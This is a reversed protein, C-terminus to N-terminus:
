FMSVFSKYPKGLNCLVDSVENLIEYLQEFTLNKNLEYLEDKHHLEYNHSEMYTIASNIYSIFIDDVFVNENWLLKRLNGKSGDICTYSLPINEAIIGLTDSLKWKFDVADYLGKSGDNFVKELGLQYEVNGTFVNEIVNALRPKNNNKVEYRLTFNINM